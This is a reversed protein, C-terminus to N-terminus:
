EFDNNVPDPFREGRESKSLRGVTVVGAADIVPLARTSVLLSHKRMSLSFSSFFRCTSSSFFLHFSSLSNFFCCFFYFLLSLHFLLSASLSASFDLFCASFTRFAFSFASFALSFACSLAPVLLFTLLPVLSLAPWRVFRFLINPYISSFM